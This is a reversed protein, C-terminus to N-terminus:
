TGHPSEKETNWTRIDPLSKWLMSIGLAIFIAPWIDAFALGGINFTWVACWLGLLLLWLGEGQERRRAASWMKVIGLCILVLPWFRWIPGTHIIGTTDLLLAGGTLVLISGVLLHTSVSKRTNM